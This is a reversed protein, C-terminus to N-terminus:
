EAEALARPTKAAPREPSAGKLQVGLAVAPRAARGAPVSRRSVSVRVPTEVEATQTEGPPSGGGPVGANGGGSGPDPPGGAGSEFGSCGDGGGGAAVMLDHRAAASGTYISSAGGGGACGSGGGGAGGAAGDANGAVQYALVEGPTVAVQGTVSDGLGGCASACPGGGVGGVGQTQVATVDPSVTFSGSAGQSSYTCTVTQGAQVCGPQLAASAAHAGAAISTAALTLVITALVTARRLRSTHTSDPETM